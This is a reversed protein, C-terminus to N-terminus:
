AAQEARVRQVTGVGCGVARATAKIGTGKSLEARIADETGESVKPRGLVKGEARARKLGAYVRELTM